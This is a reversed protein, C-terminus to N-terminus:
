MMVKRGNLRCIVSVFRSAFVRAASAQLAHGDEVGDCGDAVPREVIAVAQLPNLSVGVWLLHTHAEIDKIVHWLVFREVHQGLMQASILRGVLPLFEGVDRGVQGIRKFFAIHIAVALHSGGIDGAHHVHECAKLIDCLVAAAGVHCAVASGYRSGVDGGDDVDEGAQLM